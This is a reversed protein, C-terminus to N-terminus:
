SLWDPASDKSPLRILTASEMGEFQRVKQMTSESVPMDLNLVGIAPGGAMEDRRGVAMQAINVQEEALVNGVYGIVGPTDRHTFILLNGDMYADTRYDGLRVLRPMDKGFVTGGAHLSRGDGLVTASVVSAFAGPTPNSQTNIKIGRDTAIAEANVINVNEAASMLLGACFASKLIRHDQKAIEGQLDLEVSEIAGGHWGALLIGLRYAVDLYGRIQDLVSPDIAITNVANRIEGKKLYNILLEVAEVAVQIQAEETSAGLHPTCLVGPMGFLPSDTCPESSYVDLAVGGLQGSKLGDALAEEDYIGGRACNILRAGPKIRAVQQKGILGKTEETLPTHVTLYDIEPLLDDVTKVPKLGLQEMQQDSLYPDFGLVKM